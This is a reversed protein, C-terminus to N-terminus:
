EKSMVMTIWNGRKWYRAWLLVVEETVVLAKRTGAWEATTRWEV